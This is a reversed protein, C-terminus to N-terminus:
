FQCLYPYLGTGVPGIGAACPRDDWDGARGGAIVACDEEYGGGASNNPENPDWATFVVPTADIWAFTMETVADSLGIFVDRTGALTKAVAYRDATSTVALRANIALCATTADAYSRASTFLLFCSGDSSTMAADGGTCPRADVAVDVAADVPRPSDLGSDSGGGGIEVGCGGLLAGALLAGAVQTLVSCLASRLMWANHGLKGRVSWPKKVPARSTAPVRRSAVNGGM